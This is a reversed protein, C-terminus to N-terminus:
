PNNGSKGSTQRSQKRTSQLSNLIESFISLSDLLLKHFSGFQIVFPDDYYTPKYNQNYDSNKIKGPVTLGFIFKISAILYDTMAGVSVADCDVSSSTGTVTSKTDGIDGTEGTLGILSSFAM